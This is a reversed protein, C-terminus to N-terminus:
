RSKGNKRKTIKHKSPFSLPVSGLLLNSIYYYAVHPFSFLSLAVQSILLPSFAVLTTTGPHKKRIGSGVKKWGPDSKKGDRIRMM